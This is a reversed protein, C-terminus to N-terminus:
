TPMREVAQSHARLAPRSLSPGVLSGTTNHWQSWRGGGPPCDLTIRPMCKGRGATRMGLDECSEHAPRHQQGGGPRSRSGAGVCVCLCRGEFLRALRTHTNQRTPPCFFLRSCNCNCCCGQVPHSIDRHEAPQPFNLNEESTCATPGIRKSAKREPKRGRTSPM